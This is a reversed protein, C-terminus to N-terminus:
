AAWVLEWDSDDGGHIEGHGPRSSVLPAMRQRRSAKLKRLEQGMLPDDSLEFEDHSRMSRELLIHYSALDEGIHRFTATSLGALWIDFATFTDPHSKPVTGKRFVVGAESSALALVLRIVPKPNVTGSPGDELFMGLDFPSMADFLTTQMDKKFRRSNRVQILIATVSDRSLKRKTDCLPLVIDIGDQNDSCLIMAGRTVFKWLNDVSIMKNDEIKIVHNFWMAYDQFTEEFPKDERARSFTPRSKRLTEYESPPPLDRMFDVVSIWRRNASTARRAEDCAHMIILAAVVEGRRGRDICNLGSHHALHHVANKLTEKLLEYAAEALLPESGALTILKEFSTTVTMYLRMHREVQSCAVDRALGDANFELAFRVSLCALTGPRDNTALTNPGCLLKQKTFDMLETESPHEM